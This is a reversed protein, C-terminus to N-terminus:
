KNDQFILFWVIIRKGERESTAGGYIHFPKIEGIESSNMIAPVWHCSGKILQFTESKYNQRNNVEQEDTSFDDDKLVRFKINKLAKDFAESRKLQESSTTAWKIWSKKSEVEQAKQKLERQRAAM